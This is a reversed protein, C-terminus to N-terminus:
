QFINSLKIKVSESTIPKTLYEDFGEAVYREADGEMANASLAIIPKKYELDNKIIKMSTVGDMIPMQIDMLILDYKEPRSKVMDVAVQGNNAVDVTCKLMELMIKAIRQNVFNDEVLLVHLNLKTNLTKIKKSEEILCMDNPDFPITFWFTCGNGEAGYVGIEGNMLEALEKAISLGLGTGEFKNIAQDDNIQYFKEFLRDQDKKSIGKGYDKVEILLQRPKKVSVIIDIVKSQSYKIANSIFNNLIQSARSEDILLSVPIDKSYSSNITIENEKAMGLFLNKSSHIINHMNVCTLNLQLKGAQIKSLDLIDNIISLLFGASNNITNVYDKQQEDLNTSKLIDLMGIVGNMPTRIEHSMNALFNNKFEAEKVALDRELESKKKALENTIDRVNHSIYTEDDQIFLELTVEAPFREKNIPIRESTYVFKEGPQLNNFIKERKEDDRLVSDFERVHNEYVTEPRIGLKEISSENIYLFRGKIDTIQLPTGTSNVIKQLLQVNDEQNKRETIDKRIALYKEPKGDKGLIPIINTDTWYYTGNKKRNKVEAHWIKGNAITQWLDKFFAKSHYGSNIIRHDQGLLEERSFQSIETFFDNVYTIKGKVDTMAVINTKDLANKYDKLNKNSTDLSDQTQEEDNKLLYVILILVVFITILTYKASEDFIEQSINIVVYNNKIFHLGVIFSIISLILAQSTHVTEETSHSLFPLAMPVIFGIHINTKIGYLYTFILLVLNISGILSIKAINYQKNKILLLIGLFIAILSLCIYIVIFQAYFYAQIMSPIMSIICALTIKITVIARRQDNDLQTSLLHDPLLLHWIKKM